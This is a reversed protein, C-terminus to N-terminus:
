RALTCLGLGWIATKRSHKQQLLGGVGAAMGALIWAWVTLFTIADMTYQPYRPDGGRHMPWVVHRDGLLLMALPVAAVVGCALAVTGWGSQRGSRGEPTAYGLVGATGRMEDKLKGM